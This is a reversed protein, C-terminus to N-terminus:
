QTGAPRAPAPVGSSPLPIGTVGLPVAPVHPHPHPVRTSPALLVAQLVRHPPRARSSELSVKFPWHHRYAVVTDLRWRVRLVGWLPCELGWEVPSSVPEPHLPGQPLSLPCAPASLLSPSILPLFLTQFGPSALHPTGGWGRGAGRKAQVGTVRELSAPFSLGRPAPSTVWPHHESLHPLLQPALSCPIYGLNLPGARRAERPPKRGM